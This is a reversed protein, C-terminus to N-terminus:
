PKCVPLLSRQLATFVGGNGDPATALSHGSAMIVKGEPTLCPLTGQVALWREAAMQAQILGAIFYARGGLNSCASSVLHMQKHLMIAPM